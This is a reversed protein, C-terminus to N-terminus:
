SAQQETENRAHASILDRAMAKVDPWDLLDPSAAIMQTVQHAMVEPFSIMEGDKVKGRVGLKQEAEAYWNAIRNGQVWDATMRNAHRALAAGNTIEGSKILKKLQPKAKGKLEVDDLMRRLAKPSLPKQRSEPRIAKASLPVPASLAEAGASSKKAAGRAVPKSRAAGAEAEAETQALAEARGQAGPPGE